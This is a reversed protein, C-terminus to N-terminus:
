KYRAYDIIYYYTPESKKIQFSLDYKSLIYCALIINLIILVRAIINWANHHYKLFILRLLYKGWWIMAQSTAMLLIFKITDPVTKPHIVIKSFHSFSNTTYIDTLHLLLKRFILIIVAFGVIALTLRFYPKADNEGDYYNPSKDISNFFLMVILAASIIMSLKIIYIGLNPSLIGKYSPITLERIIMSIFGPIYLIATIILGISITRLIFAFIERRNMSRYGFFFITVM